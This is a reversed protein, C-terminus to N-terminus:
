KFLWPGADQQQQAQQYALEGQRKARKILTIARANDGIDHAAKAQALYKTADRWEHGAEASKKIAAKAEMMLTPFDDAGKQEGVKGSSACACLLLAAALASIIKM